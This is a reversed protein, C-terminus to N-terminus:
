EQQTEATATKLEFSRRDRPFRKTPSARDNSKNLTKPKRLKKNPSNKQHNGSNGTPPKATKQKPPPLPFFNLERPQL